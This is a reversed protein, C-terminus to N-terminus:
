KSLGKLWEKVEHQYDKLSAERVKKKTFCGIPIDKRLFMVRKPGLISLALHLPGGVASIFYDCKGIMAMLTRMRPPWDRLHNEVCEPKKNEPNHFVHQMTMEVPVYGAEIIDHWIKAATEDDANAVWPVSTCQFSVGVIGKPKLSLHGSVPSIGLEQICCLEAKTRKINKPDELPFNCAFVIDYDWEVCKERWDGDLLIAEHIIEKEDLGRLLGINFQVNPYLEKLKYFPSIFMIVDGIGHIFVILVRKTEETIVESLKHTKDVLRAM